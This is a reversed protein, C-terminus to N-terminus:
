LDRGLIATIVREPRGTGINDAWWEAIREHTRTWDRGCRCRWQYTPKPYISPGDRHQFPLAADPAIGHVLINDGSSQRYHQWKARALNRQCECAIFLVPERWRTMASPGM